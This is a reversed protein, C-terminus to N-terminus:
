RRHNPVFDSLSPLYTDNSGSKVEKTGHKKQMHLKLVRYKKHCISCEQRHKRYKRKEVTVKVPKKEESTLPSPRIGYYVDVLRLAESKTESVLM